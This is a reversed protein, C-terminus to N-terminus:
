NGLEIDVALTATALTRPNAFTVANKSILTSLSIGCLMDAPPTITLTWVATIGAHNVISPRVPATPVALKVLESLYISDTEAAIVATGVPAGNYTIVISTGVPIMEDSEILADTLYDTLIANITDPYQTSVTAVAGNMSAIMNTGLVLAALAIAETDIIVPAEGTAAQYILGSYRQASMQFNAAFRHQFGFEYARGSTNVSKDKFFMEMNGGARFVQNECFLLAAPVIAGGIASGQPAKVSNDMDWCVGLKNGLSKHIKFGYYEVVSPTIVGNMVMRELQGKLITNNNVLDWWLDSPLVLHRKEPYEANDCARACTVIDELTLTKYGNRLAGTTPLIIKKNGAADPAFAYAADAIEQRVIADASKRTYFQMKDYPLAHLVINRLKYNQSDYVDLSIENTTETPEVDDVDTIRNKYVAPDAGGEPFVLTQGDKVFSSLDEANNLWTEIANYEEKLSRLFVIKQTSLTIPPAMLLLGGSGALMHTAGTHGAFAETVAVLLIALVAIFGFLKKM